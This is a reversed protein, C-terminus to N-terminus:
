RTAVDPQRGSTSNGFFVGCVGRIMLFGCACASSYIIGPIWGFLPMMAVSTDSAWDERLERPPEEGRREYEQIEVWLSEHYFYTTATGAFWVSVIGLPFYIWWYNKPKWVLHLLLLVPATLITIMFCLSSLHYLFNM